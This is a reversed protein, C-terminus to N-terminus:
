DYTAEVTWRGTELALLHAHGDSLLVQMRARRRYARPDWWREECPWPGAWGVVDSWPGDQVSLRAPESSLVGRGSVGVQQGGPGILSAQLPRDHVLAPAPAPVRGPWPPEEGAGGRDGALLPHDGWPVMRVQERPDRGGGIVATSVAGYGLMGQVRALSRAGRADIGPSGGWFATQAGSLPLVEDPSLRVATIGATPGSPRKSGGPSGVVSDEGVPERSIWADLQWRVREALAASSLPGDHSWLRSLREGHETEVEVLLRSCGLGSRSLGEYLEQALARARFAVTDSSDAPPDIEAGVALDPPPVRSRLLSEDLGRALRHARAGGSGFRGVVAREPLEALMGLTRVGLRVLLESVEPCGLTAVPLGALFRRTAGPPVVAGALAALRAAFPGDAVGVRWTSGALGAGGSGRGPEGELVEGVAASVSLALSEDGGFYRSPGRTALYCEGPLRVEVRPCFSELAAVVPEFLRAELGEDREVVVVEPCRTQAERRRLGPVLGEARAGPSCAQVREAGVAVVPVEAPLGAVVVPWDPCCVALTRM